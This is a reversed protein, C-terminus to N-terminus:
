KALNLLHNSIRASVVDPRLSNLAGRRMFQDSCSLDQNIFALV